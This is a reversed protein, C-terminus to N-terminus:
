FERFQEQALYSLRTDILSHLSSMFPGKMSFSSHCLGISVDASACIQELDWEKEIIPELFNLIANEHFSTFEKSQAVKDFPTVFHSNFFDAERKMLNKLFTLSSTFASSLPLDEENKFSEFIADFFLNLIGKRKNSFYEYIQNMSEWFVQNREVAKEEIFHM